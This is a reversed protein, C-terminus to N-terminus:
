TSCRRSAQEAALDLDEDFGFALWAGGIRAIPSRLDLDERLELRLQAREIPCEIATGSLEGDGQAGHGDGGSFLAGDVPIPLFLTTGAVLEKCDINGGWRRPPRPPDQGARGAADRYRRSVACVRRTARAREAVGRGRADLRVARRRRLDRGVRGACRTSRARRADFRRARRAGRDARLRTGRTSRAPGATSSRADAEWRWGANLARFRVSDGPDVTLVPPLERSFHGHVTAARPPARPDRCESRSARTSSSSGTTTSPSTPRSPASRFRVVGPELPVYRQRAKSVDLEPVDVFAMTLDVSSGGGLLGLRLVPLSNFLPSFGLDLDVADGDLPARGRRLDLTRSGRLTEVSAQLRESVFGPGTELAYELRYALPAFGLQTGRATLRDRRARRVRARVPGRRGM